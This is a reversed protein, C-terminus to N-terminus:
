LGTVRTNEDVKATTMVTYYMYRDRAHGHAPDGNGSVNPMGCHLLLGDCILADGPNLNLHTAEKEDPDLSADRHTKPYLLTGGTYRDHPTLAILVTYYHPKPNLSRRDDWGSDTHVPQLQSGPRSLMVNHTSIRGRFRTGNRKGSIPKTPDEPSSVAATSREGLMHRILPFARENLIKEIGITEVVERKLPFDYRGFSREVAPALVTMAGGSYTRLHAKITRKAGRWRQRDSRKRLTRTPRASIAAGTTDDNSTDHNESSEDKEPSGEMIANVATSSLLSRLCTYGNLLLERVHPRAWDPASEHMTRQWKLTLRDPFVRRKPKEEATKEKNETTGQKTKEKKKTDPELLGLAIKAQKGSRYRKWNKRDYYFYDIRRKKKVNVRDTTEQITEKGDMMQNSSSSSTKLTDVDKPKTTQKRELGVYMWDDPLWSPRKEGILEVEGKRLEGMKKKKGHSSEIDNVQKTKIKSITSESLITTKPDGSTETVTTEATTAISTM